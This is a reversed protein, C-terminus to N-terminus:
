GSIVSAYDAAVRIAREPRVIVHSAPLQHFNDAPREAPRQEIGNVRNEAVHGRSAREVLVHGGRYALPNDATVGVAREPRPVIRGARLYALHYQSRHEMGRRTTRRGRLHM